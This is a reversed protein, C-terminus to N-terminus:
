LKRYKELKRYIAARSIGLAQAAKETDGGFRGLVSKIHEQELQNLHLITPSREASCHIPGLGPFHEQSLPSGGALLLARELVNKLERINGPWSYAELFQMIEPSPEQLPEGASKLLHLVLVKLDEIRERLPPLHIPFVNIRYFLDDRFRRQAVDETLNKNTACILRFDSKRVIVEGLRRYQGAEIVKLFQAQIGLNMDGIEDLFLTGGDAIELLGQQDKVASTFAGKTHGFLESALLEGRFGSCSLDVFPASARPGHDHIWQAMVGKGTGTEGLILVPTRTQSALSALEMTKKMSPSNGFYPEVHRALRQQASNKRKLSSLELSKKLFVELEALNVPKTLFHDAGRRMAEVAIPIGGAGTIVIIALDPYKERLDPIWEIGDGDPLKLDLFLADFFRSLCAKRAEDLSSATFIVYGTTTFYKLFGFQTSLDDDVLLIRPKVM